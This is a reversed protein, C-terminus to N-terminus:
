EITSYSDMSLPRARRAQPKCIDLEAMNPCMTHILFTQLGPISQNDQADKLIALFVLRIDEASYSANLQLTWDFRWTTPRVRPLPQAAVQTMRFNSRQLVRAM